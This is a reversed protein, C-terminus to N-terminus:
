HRKVRKTENAVIDKTANSDLFTESTLQPSNEVNFEQGKGGKEIHTSIKDSNTFKTKKKLDRCLIVISVQNM